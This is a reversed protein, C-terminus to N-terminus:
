IKKPRGKSDRPGKVKSMGCRVWVIEMQKLVEPSISIIYDDCDGAKFGAGEIVGDLGEKGVDVFGVGYDVKLLVQGKFPSLNSLEQYISNYPEVTWLLRAWETKDGQKLRELLEDLGSSLGTRGNWYGRKVSDTNQAASKVRECNEKTSNNLYEAVKTLYDLYNAARDEDRAIDTFADSM